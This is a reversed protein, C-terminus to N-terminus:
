SAMAAKSVAEGFTGAFVRAPNAWSMGQCGVKIAEALEYANEGDANAILQAALALSADRDLIASLTKAGSLLTLHSGDTGGFQNVIVGSDLHMTTNLIDM